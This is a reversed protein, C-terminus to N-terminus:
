ELDEGLNGLELFEKKSMAEVTARNIATASGKEEILDLTRARLQYEESQLRDPDGLLLYVFAGLAVAVVGWVGITAVIPIEKGLCVALWWPSLVIASLCLIPNLANRVRFRGGYETLSSVLRSRKDEVNEM